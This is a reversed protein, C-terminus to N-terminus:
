AAGSEMVWSGALVINDTLLQIQERLEVHPSSFSLLCLGRRDPFLLWYDTVLLTTGEGGVEKAGATTRTHRIFPGATSTAGVLAESETMRSRIRDTMADLHSRGGIEPGLEHWYMTVTLAVAADENRRLFFAMFRGRGASAVQGSSTLWRTMEARLAPSPPLGKLQDAVLQAAQREIAAPDTLDIVAWDKSLALDLGVTRDGGAGSGGARGDASGETSVAEAAEAEPSGAVWAVDDDTLQPELVALVDEVSAQVPHPGAPDFLVRRVVDRHQELFPGLSAGTQLAFERAPSDGVFAAFTSASSFVCLDYSVPGGPEGGAYVAIQSAGSPDRTVPVVVYDHRLAQGVGPIDREALAAALRESGVDAAPEVPISTPEDTM